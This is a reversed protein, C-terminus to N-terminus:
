NKCQKILYTTKHNGDEDTESINILRQNFLRNPSEFNPDFKEVNLVVWQCNPDATTNNDNLNFFWIGLGVIVVVSAAVSIWRLKKLPSIRYNDQLSAIPLDLLDKINKAIARRKTVREMCAICSNIHNRTDAFEDGILEGDIFAQIM